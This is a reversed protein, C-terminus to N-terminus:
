HLAGQAHDAGRIFTKKGNKKTLWGLAALIVTVTLAIVTPDRSLDFAVAGLATAVGLRTCIVQIVSGIAVLVMGIMRTSDAMNKSTDADTPLQNPHIPQPAIVIPKPPVVPARPSPQAPPAIVAGEPKKAPTPPVVSPAPSVKSSSSPPQVPQPSAAAAGTTEVHTTPVRPSAPTDPLLDDYAYAYVDKFPTRYKVGDEWRNKGANWTARSPHDTELKLKMRQESRLTRHFSRGMFLLAEAYHRSLLGEYRLMYDCYQGDPGVWRPMNNHDYKIKPAYNPDERQDKPPRSCTAGSWKGFNAAADELLGENFSSLVSSSKWAAIGINFAQCVMGDLQSQTAQRTLAGLVANEYPKLHFRLLAIAEDEGALRHALNVDEGDFWKLCGYGITLEMGPHCHYATLAAGGPSLEVSGDDPGREYETLLSIANQSARMNENV